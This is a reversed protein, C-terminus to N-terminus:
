TRALDQTVRGQYRGLDDSGVGTVPTSAASIFSIEYAEPKDISLSSRAEYPSTTAIDQAREVCVRDMCHPLAFVSGVVAAIQAAMLFAHQEHRWRAGDVM